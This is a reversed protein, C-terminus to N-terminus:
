QAAQQGTDAAPSAAEAPPLTALVEVLDLLDMLDFPKPLLADVESFEGTELRESASMVVLRHRKRLRPDRELEQLVGYGDLVPMMLDLLVLCSERAARLRDLAERGDLALTVHYGEEELLDALLRRIDADDDVVLVARM